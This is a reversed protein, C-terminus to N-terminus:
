AHAPHNARCRDLLGRFANVESALDRLRKPRLSKTEALSAVHALLRDRDAALEDALPPYRSILVNADDRLTTVEKRLVGLDPVEGQDKPRGNTATSERDRRALGRSTRRRRARAESASQRLQLNDAAVQRAAAVRAEERREQRKEFALQLLALICGFLLTLAVGNRWKESAYWSYGTFRAFEHPEVLLVEVLSEWTPDHLSVRTRPALREIDMRSAILDFFPNRRVEALYQDTLHVHTIGVWTLNRGLAVDRLDFLVEFGFKQRETADNPITSSLLEQFAVDFFEPLGQGLHVYHERDEPPIRRGTVEFFRMDALEDFGRIVDNISVRQYLAESFQWLHFTVGGVLLVVLVFRLRKM